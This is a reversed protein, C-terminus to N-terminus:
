KPEQFRRLTNKLTAPVILKHFPRILAFYARGLKNHTHVVTCLTVQARGEAERDIRVSCYFKLHKDDKATVTETESRDTVSKLVAAKIAESNRCPSGALGFPRLLLNRLKMSKEVWGPPATWFETQVDDPTLTAPLPCVCEFADAYDAPLYKAVLSAAPIPVQHPKVPIMRNLAM